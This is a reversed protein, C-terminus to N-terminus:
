SNRECKKDKRSEYAMCSEKQRKGEKMDRNRRERDNKGRKRREWTTVSKVETKSEGKGIEKGKM